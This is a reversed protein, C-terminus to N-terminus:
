HAATTKSEGFMNSVFDDSMSDQDAILYDYVMHQKFERTSVVKWESDATQGLLGDMQADATYPTNLTAQEINYFRDANALTFSVQPTDITLLSPTTLTVYMGAAVQVAEASVAVAVGNVTVTSFGTAYDGAVARVQVTTGDAATFKLGMESLFTGEHSYATTLPLPYVTKGSKMSSLQSAVRAAKMQGATMSQGDVLMTFLANFQLTPTSLLNFFRNPIGHVQFSQGHFGVFSPDGLVSTLLANPTIVVPGVPTYPCASILKTALVAAIIDAPSTADDLNDPFAPAGNALNLLAAHRAEVTVITAAIQQLASDTITNAAGDYAKVGTNELIQAIAFYQAVTTVATPFTYNCAPVALGNRSEIVATLATVHTNEHTQIITSLEYYEAPFGARVFDDSTFAAVAYNYFAAELHELTLAYNLAVIDNDQQAQTYSAPSFAGTQVVMGNAALTVGTPRVSPLAAELDYPCSSIFPAVVGAITTANLATDFAAPFPVAGNLLNLFAAHRAEVTAISAAVQAYGPSSIGNLAGDYASVGGNELAQATAIFSDVTALAADFTYNCVPVADAGLVSTLLTVHYAEHAQITLFMAYTSENYNGQTFSSAPFKALAADYFSHELNELTLAYQLVKIDNATSASIANSQASAVSLLAGLVLASLVSFVNM